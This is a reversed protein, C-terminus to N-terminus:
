FAGFRRFYEVVGDLYRIKLNGKSRRRGPKGQFIRKPMREEAMRQLQCLENM